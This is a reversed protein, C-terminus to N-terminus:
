RALVGIVEDTRDCVEIQADLAKIYHEAKGIAKPNSRDVFGMIREKIRNIHLRMAQNAGREREPDFKHGPFGGIIFSHSLRQFPFLAVVEGDDKVMRSFMEKVCKDKCDNVYTCVVSDVEVFPTGREDAERKFARVDPEKLYAEQYGPGIVQPPNANTHYILGKTIIGRCMIGKQLLSIVAGWCHGVLNVAGAPSVEASVIVSDSIQTLKFDLDRQLYKSEPCISPGSRKFRLADDPSGLIKVLELLEPLSPGSKDAAAEVMKKFGLIDVFGIFKEQFDM